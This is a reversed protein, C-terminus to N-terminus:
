TPMISAHLQMHTACVAAFSCCRLIYIRHGCRDAVSGIILAPTAVAFMMQFMFFLSLPITAALSALPAAGVGHM